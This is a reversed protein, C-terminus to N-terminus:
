LEMVSNLGKPIQAIQKLLPFDSQYMLVKIWLEQMVATEVPHQLSSTFTILPSCLESFSNPVIQPSINKSDAKSVLTLLLLVIQQDQNLSLFHCSLRQKQHLLWMILLSYNRLMIKGSTVMSKEGQVLIQPLETWYTQFSQNQIQPWGWLSWMLMKM